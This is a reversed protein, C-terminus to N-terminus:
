HESDDLPESARESQTEPPHNPVQRINIPRGNKLVQLLLHQIEVLSVDSIFHADPRYSKEIIYSKSFSFGLSNSIEFLLDALLDDSKALFAQLAQDTLGAQSSQLHKRYLLWAERVQAYNSGQFVFDIRNLADVHERNLRNSRTGLLTQFVKHRQEVAERRAQRWESAWVALIPGALTACIIAVGTLDITITTGSM